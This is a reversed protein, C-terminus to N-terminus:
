AVLAMAGSQEPQEQGSNRWSALDKWVGDDKQAAPGRSARWGVAAMIVGRAQVTEHATAVVGAAAHRVQTCVDGDHGQCCSQPKAWQM